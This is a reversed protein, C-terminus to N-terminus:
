YEAPKVGDEPLGKPNSTSFVWGGNKDACLEPQLLVKKETFMTEAWQTVTSLEAMSLNIGLVAGAWEEAGNDRAVHNCLM